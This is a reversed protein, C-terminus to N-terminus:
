NKRLDFYDIIMKTANDWVKDNSFDQWEALDASLSAIAERKQEVTEEDLNKCIHM